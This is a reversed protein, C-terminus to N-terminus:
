WEQPGGASARGVAVTEVPLEVEGSESPRAAPAIRRVAARRSALAPKARTAPAIPGAGAGDLRFRGVLAELEAAQHALAQATSALDATESANQQVVEDM